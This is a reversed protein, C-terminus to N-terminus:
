SQSSCGWVYILVYRNLMGQLRALRLLEASLLGASLHDRAAWVQNMYLVIWSNSSDWWILISEIHMYVVDGRTAELTRNLETECMTVSSLTIKWSSACRIEIKKCRTKRKTTLHLSRPHVRLGADHRTELGTTQEPSHWNNTSSDVANGRAPAYIYISYINIYIYILGLKM